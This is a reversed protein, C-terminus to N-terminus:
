AKFKCIPDQNRWRMFEEGEPLPCNDIWEMGSKVVWGTTDIGSIDVCDFVNLRLSKSVHQNHCSESYARFDEADQQTHLTLTIGDVYCLIVDIGTIMATYVYIKKAGANMLKTIVDVLKIPYMLPEGGTLYIEEYRDFNEAYPLNEIDWDKNCCGSCNRPCDEWLFLRLKSAVAM